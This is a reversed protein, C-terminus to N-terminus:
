IKEKSLMVDLKKLLEIRFPLDGIRVMKSVKFQEPFLQDSPIGFDICARLIKQANDETANVFIDLDNTARIHDYVGVAYGGILLYEVSHRNLCTIFDSFDSALKRNNQM